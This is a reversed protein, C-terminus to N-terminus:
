RGRAALWVSCASLPLVLVIAALAAVGLSVEAENSGAPGLIQNSVGGGVGLWLAALGEVLNFHRPRVTRTNARSFLFVVLLVILGGVIIIGGVGGWFDAGRHLMAVMFLGGIVVWLALLSAEKRSSFGRRRSTSDNKEPRAFAHARGAEM